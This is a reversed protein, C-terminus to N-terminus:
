RGRACTPGVLAAAVGGEEIAQLEVTAGAMPLTRVSDEPADGMIRRELMAYRQGVCDIRFQYRDRTFSITEITKEDDFTEQEPRARLIQVWVDREGTQPNCEITFPNFEITSGDRQKRLHQWDSSLGRYREFHPNPTCDIVKAAAIEEAKRDMATKAGPMRQPAVIAIGGIVLLAIAGFALWRVRGEMIM